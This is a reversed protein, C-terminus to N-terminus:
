HLLLLLHVESMDSGLETDAVTGLAMRPDTELFLCPYRIELRHDGKEKEPRYRQRYAPRRIPSVDAYSLEQRREIFGYPCIGSPYGYIYYKEMRSLQALADIYINQYRKTASYSPAVGLGKTGAISSIVSIHGGGQSSFYRYAALVMRTFGTVNTQITAQEISTDLYKNQNGIGSSLLFIDMGGLDRILEDLRDAADEATVDLQKIRIHEPDQKRFEELRDVRRGALGLQYGRKWYIKAVEYGIGSTAGIIIIRKVM